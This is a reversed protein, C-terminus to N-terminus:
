VIRQVCHVPIGTSNCNFCSTCSILSALKLPLIFLLYLRQRAVSTCFSFLMYHEHTQVVLVTYMIFLQNHVSYLLTLSLLKAYTIIFYSIYLLIFYQSDLIMRIDDMMYDNKPNVKGYYLVKCKEINFPLLWINSWQLLHNLDAQILQNLHASNSFKTDDVFHKVNSTIDNPIDNIFITFLSPGLM